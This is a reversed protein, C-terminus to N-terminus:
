PYVQSCQGETNGQHRQHAEDVLARVREESPLQGTSIFPPEGTTDM